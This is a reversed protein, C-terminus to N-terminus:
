KCNRDIQIHIGLQSKGDNEQIITAKQMKDREAVM